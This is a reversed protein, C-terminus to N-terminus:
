SDKKKTEKKTDKKATSAKTKAAKKPADKAKAARKEIEQEKAATVDAGTVVTWRKSKSIPRCEMIQVRSGVEVANSEDHASYKDTRRVYKKYVPHKYRREVLVTVTKENKNSVVEGELVRRPM